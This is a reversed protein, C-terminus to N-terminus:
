AGHAGDNMSLKHISGFMFSSVELEIFKNSQFTAHAIEFNSRSTNKHQVVNGMEGNALMKSKQHICNFIIKLLKIDRRNFHIQFPQGVIYSDNIKTQLKSCKGHVM